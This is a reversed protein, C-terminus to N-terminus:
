ATADWPLANWRLALPKRGEPDIEAMYYGGSRHLQIGALSPCLLVRFPKWAKARNLARLMRTLSPGLGPLVPIGALLQSQRLIINTHLHGIVTREIQGFRAAVEPIAGLFPLATPDHCFLLIRQGGPLAAFRRRIEEMHAAREERWRPLEEPLCEPEFVPLGVLTSAVSILTWRGVTESWLTPIGLEARCIQLSAVRPGGRGAGLSKKGLEHDGFVPAFKEGFRGRLKALALAASERSAPDSHGVAETDCSFDGNAVALDPEPCEEVLRDLLHNHAFPDRLWFHRRYFGILRKVIPNRIGRAEYDVRLRETPGAYHIDSCILLTAM